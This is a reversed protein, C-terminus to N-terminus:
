KTELPKASKRPKTERDAFPTGEPTQVGEPVAVEAVESALQHDIFAQGTSADVTIVQETFFSTSGYSFNRLITVKM